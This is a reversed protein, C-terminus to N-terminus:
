GPPWKMERGGLLHLHLHFVSQGAQKGTNIVLRYDDLNLKRAIKSGATFLHGIIAPDNVEKISTFHNRPIILIHVPAQPQIDKFALVEDDEYIFETNFEGSAIKCFICDDM